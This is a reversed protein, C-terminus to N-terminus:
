LEVQFHDLKGDMGYVPRVGSIEYREGAIEIQDGEAVKHKPHVLVRGKELVEDAYSKTGSKDARVSTQTVSTTLRVISLGIDVPPLFLREGTVSFGDSTKHLKAKNVPIFATM